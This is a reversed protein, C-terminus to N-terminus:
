GAMFLFYKQLFFFLQIALCSVGDQMIKPSGTVPSFQAMGVPLTKMNEEFTVLLPWVFNNWNLTFIIVTTM